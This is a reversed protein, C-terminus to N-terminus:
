NQNISEKEQRRAKMHDSIYALSKDLSKGSHTSANPTFTGGTAASFRNYFKLASEAKAEVDMDETVLIENAYDAIWQEDKVGKSKILNKLEKRKDAIASQQRATDREKILEALQSKIEALAQSEAGEGTQASTPQPTQTQTSQTANPTPGPHKEKWDRVFASQDNNANANMTEFSKYVKEVFDDLEMEENAVLPMLTDLQENISRESMSLTKGKHTLRSKINEFAQEKTFKM